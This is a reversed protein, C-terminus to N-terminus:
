KIVNKILYNYLKKEEEMPMKCDGMKVSSKTRGHFDSGCTELLGYFKCANKYFAIQEENHYSSYVELGDIELAIIDDLLQKDEKVNNGPHALIIEAKQSRFIKIAEEMKIYDIPTYGEKGKAFYDWYFNVQPNDSRKGLPLYDKLYPNNKNEEMALAAECLAEAVYIGDRGRKDLIKEDLKLEMVNQVYHLRYKSAEVEQRKIEEEIKKFIEASPDIGYGLLHFDKDLFTCDLEVAPILKIGKTDFSEFYAKTSNHDAVAMIEIDNDKAIDILTQIHFEGDDSVVSHMHLDIKNM